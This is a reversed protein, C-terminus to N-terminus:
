VFTWGKEERQFLPGALTVFDPIFKRCYGIKVLFVRLPSVNTPPPWSKVPSVKEPVTSVGQVSLIHGAILTLARDLSECHMAFTPSFVSVDDFFVLLEIWTMGALLSQHM